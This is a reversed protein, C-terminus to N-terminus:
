VDCGGQIDFFELIKDCMIVIVIHTETFLHGMYWRVDIIVVVYIWGVAFM